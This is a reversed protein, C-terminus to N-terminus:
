AYKTKDEILGQLQRAGEMTLAEMLGETIMERLNWAVIQLLEKSPVLEIHENSVQIAM